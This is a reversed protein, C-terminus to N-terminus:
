DGTKARIVRTRLFSRRIKAKGSSASRKKWDEERRLARLPTLFSSKRYVKRYGWVADGERYKTPNGGGGKSTRRPGHDKNFRKWRQQGVSTSGGRKKRADEAASKKDNAASSNSTLVTNCGGADGKGGQLRLGKVYKEKICRAKSFRTVKRRPRKNEGM